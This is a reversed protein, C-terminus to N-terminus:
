SLDQTTNDQTLIRALRRTRPEQVQPDYFFGRQFDELKTTLEDEDSKAPNSLSLLRRFSQLQEAYWRSEESNEAACSFGVLCIWSCIDSNPKWETAPIDTLIRRLTPAMVKVTKTRGTVNMALLTWMIISVRLAHVKPDVTNFQLLRHRIAMNRKTIWHTIQMVRRAPMNTTQLRSKVDYSELLQGIVVRLYLPIMSLDRDILATGIRERKQRLESYNLSLGSAAGPDYECGFLCPELSVCALYLDAMALQGLLNEDEVQKWGGIEELLNVAARLHTKAASEEDRYAEASTLFLICILLRRTDRFAQFTGLDIRSYLSALAKHLYYSEKGAFEPLPLRDIFQIRSAAAGLLCYMVLEDEVAMKMISNVASEFVYLGHRLAVMENPWTTPHYIQVYYHLLNAMPEDVKVSMSDFPDMTGFLNQRRLPITYRLWQKFNCQHHLHSSRAVITSADVLSRDTSQYAGTQKFRESSRAHRKRHGETAAHAKRQSLALKRDLLPAKTDPEVFFLKFEPSKIVSVDAHGDSKDPCHDAGTPPQKVDKSQRFPSAGAVPSVTRPNSTYSRSELGCSEKGPPLSNIPLSNPLRSRKTGTQIHSQIAAKELSSSRSSHSSQTKNIFLYRGDKTINSKEDQTSRQM